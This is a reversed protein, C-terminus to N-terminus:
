NLKKKQKQKTKKPFYVAAAALPVFIYSFVSFPEILVLCFIRTKREKKRKKQYSKKAVTIHCACTALYTSTSQLTHRPRAL